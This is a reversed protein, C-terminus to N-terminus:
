LRPAGGAQAEDYMKVLFGRLAVEAEQRPMLRQEEMVRAMDQLSRKGDILSMIFAHMRTTMAQTQFAPLAPIPQRGQVIWEPLSQHKGPVNVKAAKRARMTAVWETRGHRSDPCNMYPMQQDQSTVDAFGVEAAAAELEELTLRTAPDEGTFAVSGHNIWVGDDELLPNLRAIAHAPAEDIVDLLWPTVVVDFATDRFPPRLADGLVFHLGSRASTPAKLNREVAASEPAQPALPFEVLRLSAGCSVQQGVYALLPNLDLAVTLQARTSQHLDYALRGAGAGLVLIHEPQHEDLAEIVCQLALACEADGWNWDRHVNAEYSFIGHVPPLRTRLALLTELSGGHAGALPKLVTDLHQQQATYGAALSELRRRTAPPPNGKLALRTRQLDAAMHERALQWRNRWESVASGPDAFLWPVAGYVPFEVKCAKCHLDQLPTDCRPCALLGALDTM